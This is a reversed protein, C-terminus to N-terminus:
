TVVLEEAPQEESVQSVKQAFRYGRGPVTVIYRPDQASEGLAKRLVFINQSLNAEEVFSDPWLSKMLDDKLVVRESREVLILLTEFAKPPLSVPEAGRFLLREEPDIRFPGFEYLRKSEKSMDTKFCEQSTKSANRFVKFGCQTCSAGRPAGIAAFRAHFGATCLSHSRAPLERRSGLFSAELSFFTITGCWSVSPAKAGVAGM